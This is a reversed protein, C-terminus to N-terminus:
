DLSVLPDGLHPLTVSFTLTTTGSQGEVISPEDIDFVPMLEDDVITGTRPPTASADREVARSLVVRFEEDPEAVGDGNIAVNVSETDGTTVTGADAAYDSASALDDATAWAVTVTKASAASLSM